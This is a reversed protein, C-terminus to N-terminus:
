VKGNIQHVNMAQDCKTWWQNHLLDEITKDDFRYKIIKAPVGAVIAYPPVDKNVVAGAAIVAGTGIKVHNLIIVKAGIWVDHGISVKKINKNIGELDADIDILGFSKYYFAPSTSQTYLPHPTPTIFVDAAISCFSGIEDILIDPKCFNKLSYTYKGVRIGLTKYMYVRALDNRRGYKKSSRRLLLKKFFGKKKALKLLLLDIYNLSGFDDEAYNLKLNDTM